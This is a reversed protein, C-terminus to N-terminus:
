SEPAGDGSPGISDEPEKQRYLLEMHPYAFEVHPHARFAQHVARTIESTIRQRDTALTQYRLRVRVGSDAFEVRTFPEQRTARVIQGTAQRAAETAMREAEALDSEYTILVAVEDLLYCTEFNYNYITQSFLAANPVLVGRGSREEGSITGGVQNLVIHTLNIDQVDGTVGAVIIRDGIRFPRKLIIMLWAAMGTVPAQLSWGIIMGLFAASLGLSALSGSLAIIVLVLGAGLWAYRWVLLFNQINEPKHAHRVMYRRLPRTIVRYLVALALITALSILGSRHAQAFEVVMGVVQDWLDM